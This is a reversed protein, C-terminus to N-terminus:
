EEQFTKKDWDIIGRELAAACRRQGEPAKLLAEEDANSIFALEVLVAPADTHRLVYLGAEKDVDGDSWDGRVALAPFESELQRMICSALADAATNGPTTYIEMGKAAPNTFANCHISIFCDPRYANAADCVAKLSDHQLGRVEYGIQRLLEGLYLGVSYTVDCERLGTPGIAGPDPIGDPAHGPNIFVRM